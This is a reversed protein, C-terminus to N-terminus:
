CKEFHIRRGRIGKHMLAKKIKSVFIPNGCVYFEGDTKNRRITKTIEASTDASYRYQFKDRNNVLLDGWENKLPLREGKKRTIYLFVFPSKQDALLYNIMSRMPAIGTGSSFFILRGARNPRSIVFSGRPGKAKLTNGPRLNKLFASALGGDIIRVIFELTEQNPNSAISFPKKVMNQGNPILLNLYQGALFSIKKNPRFRFMVMSPTITKKSLLTLIIDM